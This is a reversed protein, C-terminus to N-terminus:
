SAGELLVLYNKSFFTRQRNGWRNKTCTFVRRKWGAEIIDLRFRLRRNSVNFFIRLLEKKL